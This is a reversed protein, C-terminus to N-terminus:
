AGVEDRCLHPTKFFKVSTQDDTGGIVADWTSNKLVEARTMVYVEEVPWRVINWGLNYNFSIRYSYEEHDFEYVTAKM